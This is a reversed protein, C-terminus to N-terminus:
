IHTFRVGNPDNRIGVSQKIGLDWAQKRSNIVNKVSPVNSAELDILLQLLQRRGGRNAAIHILPAQWWAKLRLLRNFQETDPNKHDMDQSMRKVQFGGHLFLYGAGLGINEDETV